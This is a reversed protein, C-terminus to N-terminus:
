FLDMPRADMSASLPAANRWQFCEAWRGRISTPSIISMTRPCMLLVVSLYTAGLVHLIDPKPEAFRNAIEPVLQAHRLFLKGVNATQITGVDAPDLASLSVHRENIDLSNRFGQLNGDWSQKFFNSGRRATCLVRIQAFHLTRTGM